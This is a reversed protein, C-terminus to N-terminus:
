KGNKRPRNMEKYLSMISIYESVTIEKPDLRYGQFKGLQVLIKDFDEAKTQEHEKKIFQEEIDRVIATQRKVESAVKELDKFYKEPKRYDFQYRYGLMRLVEILKVNYKLYLVELLSGALRAKNRLLSADKLKSLMIRYREKDTGEIYSNFITEWADSLAKKSVFGSRKLRTVDDYVLVSIFVSFPCESATKYYGGIM